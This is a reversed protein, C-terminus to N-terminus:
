RQKLPARSRMKTWSWTGFYLKCCRQAQDAGIPILVNGGRGLVAAAEVPTGFSAIIQHGHCLNLNNSCPLNSEHQQHHHTSTGSSSFRVPIRLWQPHCCGGPAFGGASQCCGGPAFGGASQRSSRRRGGRQCPRTESLVNRGRGRTQRPVERTCELSM